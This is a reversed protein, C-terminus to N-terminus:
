RTFETDASRQCVARWIILTYAHFTRRAKLYGQWGASSRLQEISATVLDRQEARRQARQEDTLTAQAPDDRVETPRIKTAAAPHPATARGTCGTLAAVM